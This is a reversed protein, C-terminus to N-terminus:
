SWTMDIQHEYTAYGARGFARAMPVNGVDTSARILAAGEAALVRTGEALVEDVHGHGRHAPRVGIYAIIPHYANRAPIVFGVPEGDPLAAIRWWGRPSPYRVLEGDYQAAAVEAPSMRALDARGHADLTGDLVETMLGILEAPDGVPRFVLRGSPEPV